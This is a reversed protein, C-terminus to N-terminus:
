YDNHSHVQEFPPALTVTTQAQTSAASLLMIDLTARITKTMYHLSIQVIYLRLM